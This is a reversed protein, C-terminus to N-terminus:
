NYTSWTNSTQSSSTTARGGYLYLTGNVLASQQSWRKCYDTPSGARKALVDEFIPGPQDAIPVGTAGLTPLKSGSSPGFHSIPIAIALVLALLSLRRVLTAMSRSGTPSVVPATLAVPETESDVVVADEQPYMESNHEFVENSSRFRVRLAPRNSQGPPLQPQDEDEFLGTERFASKRRPRAIDSAVVYEM